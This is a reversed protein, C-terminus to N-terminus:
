FKIKDEFLRGCSLFVIGHDAYEIKNFADRFKEITLTGGHEILMKWHPAATFKKIQNNKHIDMYIKLLLSESNKYLPNRKNEPDELFAYCCNFSCFIGDSEYIDREKITFKPDNRNMIESSRKETVNENITYKEKSIESHYTKCCKNPIYKIPCGIPETNDPIYNRCWFCKYKINKQLEKKSKYNIMVMLCKITNKSEGLFSIIENNKKNFDLDDLKTTNQPHTEEIKSTPLNSTESIGYKQNIKEINVGILSFTYNGSKSM